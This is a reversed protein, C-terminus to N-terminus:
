KKRVDAGIARLKKDFNYYGREVHMIDSVVTKGRAGLGALVLAAGGRLDRAKVSAGHLTKVGRVIAMKGKVTIDAGMKVLEAVHNYRMEFVNECIVSTGSRTAALAMAPAQLDTPFFPHPGTEFSFAEGVGESKIYIIDNTTNIKCTNNCIKHILASINEANAGRLAVEGGCIAAAILYTGAEIRDALPKYCTGHLRGVGEIEILANDHTSIKAGMSNLCAILDMVEPEKAPNHIVTKGFGTVAALIVNETAGVSPFDLYLERGVIRDATCIIEEGTETVTAGLASLASIHIDIPRIGIDCGGPYALRAKRARGLLPGLLFISSRLASALNQPVSYGSLGKANVILDNGEFCTKVGLHELIKIMNLVDSIKPCDRIVVEDETLVTSALIPLVANKASEIKVEGYLHNGGNIVYKDM